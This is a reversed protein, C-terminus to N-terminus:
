AKKEIESLTEFVENIANIDTYFALNNAKEELGKDKAIILDKLEMLRKNSVMCVHKVGKDKTWNNKRTVFKNDSTNQKVFDDFSLPEYKYVLYSNTLWRNHELSALKFIPKSLDVKPFGSDEIESKFDKLSVVQDSEKKKMVYNSDVIYDFVALKARLSYNVEINALTESKNLRLWVNKADNLSSLGYYSKMTATGLKELIQYHSAVFTSILADEGFIVIPVLPTNEINNVCANFEEQSLVFSSVGDDKKEMNNQKLTEATVSDNIRVYIVSKKLREEGLNILLSKRLLTAIEIDNNQESASIVFLEFGKPSFRNKDKAIEKIHSNINEYETLDLGNCFSDVSYLFPPDIEKSPQTYLNNNEAAHMESNYDGIHYHVKNINDGWLQYAQAMKKFIEKNVKGFGLFSVHFGENNEKDSVKAFDVFKDITNNMIFDTSVIDCQSLTNVIHLTKKSFNNNVDFDVNNYNIFVKFDEVLKIHEPSIPKESNFQKFRKNNTIAETFNSALKLADDDESLLGYVFVRHKKGFNRFIVKSLGTSFNETRIDFSRLVFSDKYETGEQTKQSARSIYVVVINNKDSKLKEAFRLAIPSRSDAFIYFIDKRTFWRKWLTAIKAGFMRFTVLVVSISTFILALISAVVYTIGFVLNHPGASFYPSLLAKDLSLVMMKLADFFSGAITVWPSLPTEPPVVPNLNAYLSFGLCVLYAFVVCLYTTGVIKFHRVKIYFNIAALTYVTVTIALLVYIWAVM